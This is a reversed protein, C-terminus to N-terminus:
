LCMNYSANPSSRRMVATKDTDITLGLNVCGSAFPDLSRQIDADTGATLACDDVISLLRLSVRRTNPLQGDTSYALVIWHREDRYADMLMVFTKFSETWRKLIQSKEMLLTTRDSSVITVIGKATSGYIAKISAFNKTGNLDAYWQIEETKCAMLTDQIGRLRQQVPRRCRLFAMENANTLRDSDDEHAGNKEDLLNRIDEDIDDFWEKQQRRPRGLLDLATSHIAALRQHDDVKHDGSFNCVSAWEPCSFANTSGVM